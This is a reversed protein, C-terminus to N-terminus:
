KSTEALAMEASTKLAGSRPTGLTAVAGPAAARPPVTAFARPLAARASVRTTFTKLLVDDECSDENVTGLSVTRAAEDDDDDADPTSCGDDSRTEPSDRTRHETLRIEPTTQVRVRSKKAQRTAAEVNNKAEAAISPGDEDESLALAKSPRRINALNQDLSNMLDAEKVNLGTLTKRPTKDSTLDAEKGTLTKKSFEGPPETIMKRTPAREGPSWEQFDFQYSSAARLKAIM